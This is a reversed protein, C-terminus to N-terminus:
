NPNEAWDQIEWEKHQKHGAGLIEGLAIVRQTMLSSYCLPTFL